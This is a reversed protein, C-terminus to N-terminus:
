QLQDPPDSIFRCQLNSNIEVGHALAAWWIAPQRSSRILDAVIMMLAGIALDCPVGDVIRLIATAVLMLREEDADNV